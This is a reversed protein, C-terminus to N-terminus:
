LWCELIKCLLHMAIRFEKVVKVGCEWTPNPDDVLLSQDGVVEAIRFEVSTLLSQQTSIGQWNSIRIMYFM